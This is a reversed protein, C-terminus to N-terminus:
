GGSQGAPTGAPRQRGRGPRRSIPDIAYYIAFAAQLALFAYANWFAVGVALTYVIVGITFLMTATAREEEPFSAHLLRRKHSGYLWLGGWAWSNVAMCVAYVVAATQEGQGKALAEGLVGTPYPLFTITLLLLMNLYFLGRDIREFHTFLSHHNLWMIGIVAFSVVFAALSPWRSGLDHALDQYNTPQAITLVLLTIAIAFVGDSFAEVRSKNM